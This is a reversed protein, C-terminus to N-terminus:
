DEFVDKAWTDHLAKLKKVLDPREKAFDKQEPKIGTLSHLSYKLKSADNRNGSAILKWDGQRVAYNTFWQFFLTEHASPAKPNEIIPLVSRGDLPNATKPAGTLELITPMWDMATVAQDRVEGKPLKAPYSLIAPTRIGGELFTGKNGIWKGSYGGGKNAGYYHGKPVGSNHNDVRVFANETSAGNDSQFVVITNDTLGHEDLKDLVLGIYYDTTTTVAAYAQRPMPVGRYLDAHMQLAQEPYHPINFGVFLFFPNDKNQDVFILARQTMMEPFYQGPAYVEQTGEYLDHFGAGHMFYHNYNDIFGNRIGFFEDFGQKTPGFDRHSGLHWKGFLATRYGHAKLAEAITVESLKMNVGDPGKMDNQTWTNVNSRQPHRGTMLAARAPCCVTHAYAQTFRIGNAALRDINPTILDAAGFCNADLTGQDDTFFIVVNPKDASLVTTTLLAITLFTALHPIRSPTRNM